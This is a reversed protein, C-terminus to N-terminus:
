YGIQATGANTVTVGFANAAQDFVAAQVYFTFGLLGGNPPINISWTTQGALGLLFVTADDSVYQTCSPMGLATYDRPLPFSGLAGSNLSTSVGLLGVVVAVSPLNTIQMDFSQGLHPVDGGVAALTPTGASGPCGVGLPTFQALPPPPAVVLSWVDTSDNHNSCSLTRGQVVLVRRAIPDYVFGAGGRHQAGVTTGDPQLQTWTGDFQWLDNKPTCNDEGGFVLIAGALPSYCISPTHRVPPASATQVTTWAAGDFEVTDNLFGGVVAGTHGGFMVIRNRGPHFAASSVFRAVYRSAPPVAVQSWTSGDWEWTDNLSANGDWGTCLVLGSAPPYQVLIASQRAPPSPVPNRQLWAAGDWVWTDGFVPIGSSDTGGFLVVNQRLADYALCHGIRAIPGPVSHQTWNSGDYIWTDGLAGLSVSGGGFLVFNSRADDRVFANPIRRGSPFTTGPANLSWSVSQGVVTGVLGVLALAIRPHM